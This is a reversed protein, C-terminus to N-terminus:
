RGFAKYGYKSMAANKQQRLMDATSKSNGDLYRTFSGSCETYAGTIPTHQSISIAGNNHDKIKWYFGQPAPSSFWVPDNAKEVREGDPVKLFSRLYISNGVLSFSGFYQASLPNIVKNTRPDKVIQAVNYTGDKYLMIINTVFPSSEGKRTSSCFIISDEMADAQAFGNSALLAGV